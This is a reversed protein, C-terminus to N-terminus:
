TFEFNEETITPRGKKNPHTEHTREGDRGEVTGM